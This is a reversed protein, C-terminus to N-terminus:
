PKLRIPAAQDPRKGVGRSLHGAIEAMDADAQGSLTIFHDVSVLRNEYDFYVLGLPVGAALTVHYFGSRWAPQHSRTGEPSLALWMFRGERRAAKLAEGMQGVIGNAAARDVPLGGVWRMWRGILPWKFLADKGWFTVPVGAAWKVLLGLPFDWNSTHPYVIIVGQQAPLGTFQLRWGALRLVAGALTSGRLQVPRETLLM